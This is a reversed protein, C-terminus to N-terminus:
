QKNNDVKLCEQYIKDWDSRGDEQKPCGLGKDDIYLDGRSKGVRLKHFKFGWRTLQQFTFDYGIEHAKQSDGKARGMFRSTEFIIEYGKDFLGNVIVLAKKYPKLSAYDVGEGVLQPCVLGDIDFVLTGLHKEM